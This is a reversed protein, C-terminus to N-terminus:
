VRSSDGWVFCLARASVVMLVGCLVGVLNATVDGWSATRGVFPQHWEDFLAYGTVVLVTLLLAAGLTVRKGLYLLRFFLLTLGFYMGVHILKDYAFLEAKPVSTTPITTVVFMIGWWLVLPAVVGKVLGLRKHM